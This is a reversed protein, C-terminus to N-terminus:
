GSKKEDDSDSESDTDVYIEEDIELENFPDWPDVGDWFRDPDEDSPIWGPPPSDGGGDSSENIMEFEDFDDDDDSYYQAETLARKEWPGLFEDKTTFILPYGREIDEETPFPPKQPTEPQPPPPSLDPVPPLSEPQPQPPSPPSSPPTNEGENDSGHTTTALSMRGVNSSLRSTKRLGLAKKWM